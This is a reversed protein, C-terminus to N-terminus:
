EPSIVQEPRGEFFARLNAVVLDAMAQRTEHTGSGIHPLLVVQNLNQLGRSVHPEHEFVDLAAGRLEGQQLAALLAAEDVVSGRAVNVLYGQPGLARLVARSVLHRTSADGPVIVVLFDSWAALTLLDPEHAYPVDSAAHRSHYRIDVDFGQMRRAIVRGIRGMGIMGVRKGSVRTGLGFRQPGGWQGARVFRDAASIGRAVDIMLGVALDAVCDNLVDPTYGVTIGRRRIETLDLHDIGVGFNSIVQLGPLAALVSAPLGSASSTVLGLFRAGHEALFAQPDPAQNLLCLEVHRALEELLGPM